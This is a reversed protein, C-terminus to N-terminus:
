FGMAVQFIFASETESEVVYDSTTSEYAFKLVTSHNIWYNIGGAIRKKDVNLEAGEPLDLQDFRVVFELNQLFSSEIYYPQYALQAYWATSNNEYNLLATGPNDISLLTVQSRIDIRGALSKIDRVYSLDLINTFAKVDSYETNETGVRATEFGYGIELEPFPLFGIRGGIAKNGNNDPINDFNLTGTPAAHHGGEAGDDINLSPGNSIYLAYVFKTSGAPIGGRVQLGVQTGALLQVGTHGSLGLPMGPLKNIWSPHFREAFINNPSLFKGAGFTMYANAIYMIQAYELAVATSNDELEFELESEFLINKNITWLFIPNFGVEFQANQNEEKELNTFGYGGLLFKHTPSDQSFLNQSLLLVSILIFVLSTKNM